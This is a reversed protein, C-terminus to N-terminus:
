RWRRVKAPADPARGDRYAAIVDAAAARDEITFLFHLAHAGVACLADQRDAMYLPVSNFVVNTCDTLGVVPFAAGTRDRLEARCLFRKDPADTYGGGRRARCFAGGDSLACRVTTMLPLRGYALVAKPGRIGRLAGLPLEPSPTLMAAGMGLLVSACRDNWLNMRLSAVAPIGLRAALALQGPTHVLVARPSAASLADGLRATAAEPTYAPLSVAYDRAGCSLPLFIESFYEEAESPIQAPSLFEATRAPVAPPADAGRPPACPADAIPAPREPPALLAAAAARRLANLAAPTVFLGDDIAATFAALAYPTAGFKALSRRAAEADLSATRAPEPVDGSVTVTRGGATLSLTLPTGARATLAAAVPVKRTLGGFAPAARSADTDDARRVGLMHRYRRDFYGTTFGDRSFLAALHAIEEATADRREDLLARYTKTVGYVYDASKQRGEIKLSAVGTKLIERIRGALCMDRLSLPYAAESVGSGKMAFPLRCPQACEGRNGSRGGMAFSFLCQGSYSVCHAGHLFMEIEIPSAACLAAFEDRSLERPCVMRSFGMNMLARADESSCGSTQTSAHLPLAPFRARVAAALGPDAVILADAGAEYLLGVTELAEPLEADRLRTNVTIYSRVGHARTLAVADSLELDSFNRARMRASFRHAGFYVADAGAEVAAALAEPSGAPALLEPLRDTRPPM